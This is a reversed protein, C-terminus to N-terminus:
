PSTPCTVSACSLADANDVTCSSCSGDPSTLIIAVGAGSVYLPVSKSEVAEGYISLRETGDTAIGFHDSENTCIGTNTDGVKGFGPSSCTAGAFYARVRFSFSTSNSDWINTGNFAYGFQSTPGGSGFYFGTNVGSAGIFLDTTSGTVKNLLIDGDSDITPANAIDQITKGDTGDFVAIANDTSSASSSSTDGGGGGTITLGAFSKYASAFVLIVSTALLFRILFNM